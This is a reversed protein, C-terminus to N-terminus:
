LKALKKEEKEDRALEDKEFEGVASWGLEDAMKVLFIRDVLKEGKKVVEELSEPIEIM